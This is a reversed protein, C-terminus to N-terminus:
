EFLPWKHYTYISVHLHTVCVGDNAHVPKLDQKLVYKGSKEFMTLLGSNYILITLM